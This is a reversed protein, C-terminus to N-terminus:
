CLAPETLWTTALKRNMPTIKCTMPVINNNMKILKAKHKIKLKRYLMDARGSSFRDWYDWIIKDLLNELQTHLPLIHLDLKDLSFPLSRIQECVLVLGM